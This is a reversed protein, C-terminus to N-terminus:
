VERLTLERAKAEQAAAPAALSLFALIAAVIRFIM